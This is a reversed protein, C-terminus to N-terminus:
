TSIHMETAYALMFSHHSEFILFSIDLCSNDQKPHQNIVMTNGQMGGWGVDNLGGPTMSARDEICHYVINCLTEVKM